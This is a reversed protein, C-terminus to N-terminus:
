TQDPAQAIGQSDFRVVYFETRLPVGVDDIDGTCHSLADVAARIREPTTSGVIPLVLSPLRLLWALMIQTSEVGYTESQRKFEHKIRQEDEPTFTNGWGPYAVGGM